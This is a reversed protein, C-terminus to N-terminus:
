RYLFLFLSHTEWRVIGQNTELLFTRAIKSLVSMPIRDMLSAALKQGVVDVKGFEEGEVSSVHHGPADSTSKSASKPEKKFTANKV